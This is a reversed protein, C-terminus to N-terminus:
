AGTSTYHKVGLHWFALAILFFAIGALPALWQFLASSGLPDEIGLFGVIPYYAVCGLPLIFTFFQRFWDEYISLPYQSAEVGGYVFVNMVELSETSWFSLTAQFVMLGYFFFFMGAFALSWLGVQTVTWDLDLVHIGYLFVILGQLFRGVRHMPFEQCAIQFATGRPRLLIRDFDGTKVMNSGFYDFGRSFSDAVAFAMNVSGYFVAIHELSWVGLSGFRTFLAWIGVVEVATAVFQGASYLLFSGRYQM